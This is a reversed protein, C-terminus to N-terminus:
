ITEAAGEHGAVVNSLALMLLLLLAGCHFKSINALLQNTLWSASVVRCTTEEIPRLCLGGQVVEFLAEGLQTAQLPM